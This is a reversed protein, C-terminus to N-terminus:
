QLDADCSSFDRLLLALVVGFCISNISLFLAAHTSEPLWFRIALTAVLVVLLAAGSYWVLRQFIELRTM